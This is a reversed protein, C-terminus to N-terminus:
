QVGSVRRHRPEGAHASVPRHHHAWWRQVDADPFLQFTFITFQAATVNYGEGPKRKNQSPPTRGGRSFIIGSSSLSRSCYPHVPICRVAYQGTLTNGNDYCRRWGSLRLARACCSSQSFLSICRTYSSFWWTYPAYLRADTTVPLSDPHGSTCHCTEHRNHVQRHEGPYFTRVVMLRFAAAAPSRTFRWNTASRGSWSHTASKQKVDACPLSRRMHRKDNIHKGSVDHPPPDM